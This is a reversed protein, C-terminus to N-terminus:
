RHPVIGLRNARHTHMPRGKIKVLPRNAWTRLGFWYLGAFAMTLLASLGSDGGNRRYMDLMVLSALCALVLCIHGTWRIEPKGPRGKRLIMSPVLILVSIAFLALFVGTVLQALLFTLSSQM